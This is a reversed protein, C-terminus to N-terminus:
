HGYSQCYGCHNCGVTPEILCAGDSDAGRLVPLLGHSTHSRLSQVPEASSPVERLAMSPNVHRAIADRVLTRLEHETPPNGLPM